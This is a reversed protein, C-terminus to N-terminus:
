NKDKKKKELEAKKKEQEKKANDISDQRQREKKKFFGRLLFNHKAAEMNDSFGQAGKKTSEVTKQLDNAIKEDNLLRGLSGKGNNVKDTISALNQTIMEANDAIRTIKQMTKDMDLPESGHINNDDKVPGGSLGSSLQVLKDGMLGDSGISAVADQKIFKKVSSELNLDVQVTSDNIIQINDVTGVNIGAFRVYSGVKLGSVNKFHVHLSFTSSFLKQERGILFVALVIILLGGLVFAGTKVKRRATREM